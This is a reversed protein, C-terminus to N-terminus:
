WLAICFQLIYCQICLGNCDPCYYEPPVDQVVCDGSGTCVGQVEVDHCIDVDVETVCALGTTPVCTTGACTGTPCEGHHTTCPLPSTVASHRCTGGAATDCSDATCPNGDDCNTGICPDDTCFGGSCGFQCTSEGGLYRCSGNECNGYLAYSLRTDSTSCIPDPPTECVIGECPDAQCVGNDCGHPCFVDASGYSCNGMLCAGIAQHVRAHDADVCYDAPPSDCTEGGCPNGACAGDSCGFSCNQIDHGYECVGARCVGPNHYVRASDTSECVDNPPGECVMPTGSCVGEACTDGSTCADSDDCAVGNRLEYFCAGDDCTGDAFYCENPPTQCVVGECPPGDCQGTDFNCGHPCDEEIEDYLCHYTADCTGTARVWRYSDSIYVKECKVGLTLTNM